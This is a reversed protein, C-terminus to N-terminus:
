DITSTIFSEIPFGDQDEAITKVFIEGKYGQTDWKLEISNLLGGSGELAQLEGSTEGIIEQNATYVTMRFGKFAVPPTVQIIELWDSCSRPKPCPPRPPVPTIKFVQERYSAIADIELTNTEKEAEAEELREETTEDAQGNAIIDKLEAIEEDLEVIQEELFSSRLDESYLYNTETLPGKYPEDGDGGNYDDICASFLLFVIGYAVLKTKM